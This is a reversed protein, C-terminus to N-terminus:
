PQGESAEFFWRLSEAHLVCEETRHNGRPQFAPPLAHQTAEELTSPFFGVPVRGKPRWKPFDNRMKSGCETCFSRVVPAGPKSFERLSDAGDTIEFMTSDVMVIQYLAAAHARRCSDCHCYTSHIPEQGAPIRVRYRVTGCYCHGSVDIAQTAM